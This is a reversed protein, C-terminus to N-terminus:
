PTPPLKSPTRRTYMVFVISLVLLAIGLLGAPVYAAPSATSKKPASKLIVITLKSSDAVGRVKTGSAAFITM